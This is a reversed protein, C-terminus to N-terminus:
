HESSSRRARKPSVSRTSRWPTQEQTSFLTLQGTEGRERTTEQELEEATQLRGDGRIHLVRVGLEDLVRALLLYRHCGRPDEESCMLATRHETMDDVLESIRDRFRTSKAVEDYRVHGSADYFRDETPRGGLEDGLFVYTLGAGEVAARLPAANFHPAFRSYPHSRIDALVEIGFERLLEIFRDLAHNSHGVSYVPGSTEKSV